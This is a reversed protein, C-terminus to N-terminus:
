HDLSKLKKQMSALLADSCATAEGVFLGGLKLADVVYPQYMSALRHRLSPHVLFKLKDIATEHCILDWALSM